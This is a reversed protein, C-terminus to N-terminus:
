GFIKKLDGTYKSCLQQIELEKQYVKNALNQMVTGYLETEGMTDFNYVALVERNNCHDLIETVVKNIRGAKVVNFYTACEVGVRSLKSEVNVMKEFYYDDEVFKSHIDAIEGRYAKLNEIPIAIGARQASDVMSQIKQVYLTVRRNTYLNNNIVQCHKKLLNFLIYVNEIAENKLRTRESPKKFVRDVLPGLFAGIALTIIPLVDTFKM